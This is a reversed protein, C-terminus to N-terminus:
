LIISGQALDNGNISKDSTYTHTGTYSFPVARWQLMVAVTPIRPMNTLQHTLNCSECSPDSGCKRSTLVFVVDVNGCM